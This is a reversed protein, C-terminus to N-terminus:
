AYRMTIIEYSDPKKTCAVRTMFCTKCVQKLGQARRELVGQFGEKLTQLSLYPKYTAWILCVTINGGGIVVMAQSQCCEGDIVKSLCDIHLGRGELVRRLEAFLYLIENLGRFGQERGVKESRGERSLFTVDHGVVDYIQCSSAVGPGLRQEKASASFWRVQQNSWGYSSFLPSRTAARM